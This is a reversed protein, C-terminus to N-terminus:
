ITITFKRVARAGKLRNKEFQINAEFNYLYAFWAYINFGGQFETSSWYHQGFFTFGNTQLGKGVAFLNTNILLLEGMSPLYWDNQGNNISNACLFAAGTTAGAQSIIAQTNSAGDWLSQASPGIDINNINSWVVADSLNVTDMVLYVHNNGEKYRHFIVGGQSPVYEGIEYQFQAPIAAVLPDDITGTGTITVGDTTVEILDKAKIAYIPYKTYKFNDTTYKNTYKGIILYDENPDVDALDLIRGQAKLADFNVVDM